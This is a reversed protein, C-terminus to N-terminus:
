SGRSVVECSLGARRSKRMSSSSLPQLAPKPPVRSQELLPSSRRVPSRSASRTLSGPKQIQQWTTKSTSSSSRPRWPTPQPSNPFPYLSLFGHGPLSGSAPFLQRSSDSNKVNWPSVAIVTIPTPNISDVVCTKERRAPIYPLCPRLMRHHVLHPTDCEGAGTKLDFVKVAVKESADHLDCADFTLRLM